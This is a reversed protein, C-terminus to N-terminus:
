PLFIDAITVGLFDCAQVFKEVPMIRPDEEYKKYTPYSVGIAAAVAGKMVGKEERIERLTKQM